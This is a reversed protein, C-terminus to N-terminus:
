TLSVGKSAAWYEKERTQMAFCCAAMVCFDAFVTVISSRTRALGQLVARFDRDSPAAAYAHKAKLPEQTM